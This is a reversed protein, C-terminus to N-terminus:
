GEMNLNKRRGEKRKQPLSGARIEKELRGHGISLTSYHLTKKRRKKRRGEKRGGM